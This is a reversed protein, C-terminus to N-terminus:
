SVGICANRLRRNCCFRSNQLLDLRQVPEHRVRYIKKGVGCRQVDLHVMVEAGSLTRGRVPDHNTLYSRNSLDIWTQRMDDDDWHFFLSAAMGVM